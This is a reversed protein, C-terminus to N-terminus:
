PRAGPQGPQIRLERTMVDIIRQISEENKKTAQEMQALRLKLEDMRAVTYEAGRTEMTHVRVELKVMYALVSAAGAGMAIFQAVLFYFLTSNQRLWAAKNDEGTM